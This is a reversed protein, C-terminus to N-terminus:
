CRVRDLKRRYFFDKCQHEQCHWQEPPLIPLTSALVRDGLSSGLVTTASCVHKSVGFGTSHSVACFLPRGPGDRKDGSENM